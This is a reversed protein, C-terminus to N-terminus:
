SANQPVPSQITKGLHRDFMDNILCSSQQHQITRWADDTRLGDFWNEPFGLEVIADRLTRGSAAFNEETFYWQPDVVTRFQAYCDFVVDVLSEFFDTSVAVADVLKSGSPSNSDPLVLVHPNRGNMQQSLHEKLHEFSVRNIPNDGVHVVENRIEVFLPALRDNKLKQQATSYWADFGPVKKLTAQLSFTVSRSASVFASFYCDAEFCPPTTDRLLDLFFEAERLKNEVIGFSRAM